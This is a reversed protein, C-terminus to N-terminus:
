ECCGGDCGRTGCHPCEWVKKKQRGYMGYTNSNTRSYRAKEAAAMIRKGRAIADDRADSEIGAKDAAAAERSADTRAKDAADREGEFVERFAEQFSPSNTNLNFGPVAQVGVDSLKSFDRIGAQLAM